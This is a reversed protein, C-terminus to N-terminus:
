SGRRASGACSCPWPSACGGCGARRASRLLLGAGLAVLGPPGQDARAVARLPDAGVVERLVPHGVMPDAQREVVEVPHDLAVQERQGRGQDVVVAALLEALHSWSAGSVRVRRRRDVSSRASGGVGVGEVRVLAPRDAPEQGPRGIVELPAPGLARPEVGLDHQGLHEAPLPDLEVGVELVLDALRRAAGEAVQDAAAGLPHRHGVEDAALLEVREGRVTEGATRIGRGSESNTTTSNRAASWPADLRGAHTSTPVPEPQRARAQAWCWLVARNTAISMLGSARATASAFAPGCPRASRISNRWPSRSPGTAPSAGNSAIM